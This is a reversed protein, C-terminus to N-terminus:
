EFLWEPYVARAKETAEAQTLQLENDTIPMGLLWRVKITARSAKFGHSYTSPVFVMHRYTSRVNHKVADECIMPWRRVMRGKLYYISSSIANPLWALSGCAAFEFHGKPISLKKDCIGITSYIRTKGRGFFGIPIMNKGANDFYDYVLSPKGFRELMHAYIDKHHQPVEPV